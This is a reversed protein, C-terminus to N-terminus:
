LSIQCQFSQSIVLAIIALLVISHHIKVDLLDFSPQSSPQSPLTNAAYTYSSLNPVGTGMLLAPCLPEYREHTPPLPLHQVKLTALGQPGLEPLTKLPLTSLSHSLYRIDIETRWTCPHAWRCVSTCMYKHCVCVYTIQFVEFWYDILTEWHRLDGLPGSKQWHLNKFISGQIMHLWQKDVKDIGM